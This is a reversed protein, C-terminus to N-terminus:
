LGGVNREVLGDLQMQSYRPILCVNSLSAPFEVIPTASLSGDPGIEFVDGVDTAAKWLSRGAYLPHWEFLIWPARASSLVFSAGRLVSLESGEVDVKILRPCLGKLSVDLSTVEVEVSGFTRPVFSSMGDETTSIYLSGRGPGEGVGARLIRVVSELHNKSVNRALRAFPRPAPEFAIVRGRPGVATAALLVFYGSNAGVDVYCDGPSLCRSILSATEPEYGHASTAQEYLMFDQLQALDLVMDYDGVRITTSNTGSMLANQQRRYLGTLIVRRSLELLPVNRGLWRLPGGGFLRSNLVQLTRVTTM